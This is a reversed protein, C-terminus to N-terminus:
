RLLSLFFRTIQECLVLGIKYIPLVSPTGTCFRLPCWHLSHIGRDREREGYRKMYGETEGDGYRKMYGETERDGYRKM